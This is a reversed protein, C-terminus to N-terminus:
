MLRWGKTDRAKEDKSYQTIINSTADFIDKGSREIQACFSFPYRFHSKGWSAVPKKTLKESQFLAECFHETHEGRIKKNGMSSIVYATETLSIKLPRIFIAPGAIAPFRYFYSLPPFFPFTFVNSPDRFPHHNKNAMNRCQDRQRGLKEGRRVFYVEM